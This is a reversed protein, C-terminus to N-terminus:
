IGTWQSTKIFKLGIIQESNNEFLQQIDRELKFPSIKEWFVISELDFEYEVPIVVKVKAAMIVYRRIM